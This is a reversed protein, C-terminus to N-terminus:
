ERPKPLIVAFASIGGTFPLWIFTKEAIAGTGLHVTFKSSKKLALTLFANAWGTNTEPHKSRANEREIFGINM